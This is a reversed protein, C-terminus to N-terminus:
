DRSTRKLAFYRHYSWHGGYTTDESSAAVDVGAPELAAAFDEATMGEMRMPAPYHLVRRQGFRLLRQPAYRFLLGKVNRTPTGAVQVVISGGPRVVRAFEHLYARASEPPLHQLVLSSYVLDFKASEFLSLDDLTNHVFSCRGDTEDLRRAVDLMSPSVDLGTVDTAYATLAQTLRGAGCGFDLVTHIQDLDTLTALQSMARDVEERGTALFEAPDWGGNRTGPKMLVAWLPDSAGLTEWDRRVQDLSESLSKRSEHRRM